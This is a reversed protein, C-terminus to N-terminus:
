TKGGARGHRNEQFRWYRGISALVELATMDGMGRIQGALVRAMQRVDQGHTVDRSAESFVANREDPSLRRLIQELAKIEQETM